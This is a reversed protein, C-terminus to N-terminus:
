PCDVWLVGEKTAKEITKVVWEWQYPWLDPNNHMETHCGRCLPMVFLDMAKTGMGGMNGVHCLHHSDDAPAMCRACDQSRVWALYKRSRYPKM